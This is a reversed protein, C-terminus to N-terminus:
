PGVFRRVEVRKGRHDIFATDQARGRSFMSELGEVASDQATYFSSLFPQGKSSATRAVTQPTGAPQKRNGGAQDGRIQKKGDRRHADRQADAFHGNRIQAIVRHGFGRCLQLIGTERQGDVLAPAQIRFNRGAADRQLLRRCAGDGAAM